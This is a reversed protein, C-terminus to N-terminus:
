NSLLDQTEIGNGVHLSKHASVKKLTESVMKAPLPPRSRSEIEDFKSDRDDIIQQIEQLQQGSEEGIISNNEFMSAHPIGDPLEQLMPINDIVPTQYDEMDM